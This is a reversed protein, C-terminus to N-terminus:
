LLHESSHNSKDRLSLNPSEFFFLSNSMLWANVFFPPHTFIHDCQHIDVNRMSTLGGM